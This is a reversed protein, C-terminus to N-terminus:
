SASHNNCRITVTVTANGPKKAKIRGTTPNVEVISPSSSAWVVDPIANRNNTFQIQHSYNKGQFVSEYGHFLIADTLDSFEVESNYCDKCVGCLVSENTCSCERHCSSCIFCEGGDGSHSANYCDTCVGSEVSENTCSCDRCCVSCIFSNGGEGEQAHLQQYIYIEYCDECMGPEVSEKTCPCCKHCSYCEFCTGGNNPTCM